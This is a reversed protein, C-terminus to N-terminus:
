HNENYQTGPYVPSGPFYGDSVIQDMSWTVRRISRIGILTVQGTGEASVIEHMWTAVAQWLLKRDWKSGDLDEAESLNDNCPLQYKEPDAM